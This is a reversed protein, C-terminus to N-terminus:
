TLDIIIVRRSIEDKKECEKRQLPGDHYYLGPMDVLPLRQEQQQQEEQRRKELQDIIWAPVHTTM